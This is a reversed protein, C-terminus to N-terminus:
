TYESLVWVSGFGAAIINPGLVAITATVAGSQLDLHYVSDEGDSVWLGSDDILLGHVFRGFGALTVPVTQVIQNTAADIRVLTNEADNTVWVQGNYATVYRPSGVADGDPGIPITAVVANTTPDIRSVTGAGANAVWIAGATAAIGEPHEEVPIRSVIEGPSPLGAQVTAADAAEQVATATVSETTATQRQNTADKAALRTASADPTLNVTPRPAATSTAEPIPNVGPVIIPNESDDDRLTLVLVAGIIGFVVAAAAIKLAERLWHREHLPIALDGPTRDISTMATESEHAQDVLTPQTTRRRIDIAPRTWDRPLGEVSGNRAALAKYVAARLDHDDHIHRRALNHLKRGARNRPIFPVNNMANAPNGSSPYRSTVKM